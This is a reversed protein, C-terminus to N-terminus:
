GGRVCQGEGLGKSQTTSELCKFEDVKLWEAGQMNMKIKGRSLHLTDGDARWKRYCACYMCAKPRHSSAQIDSHFGLTPLEQKRRCDLAMCTVNVPSELSSLSTFSLLATTNAQPPSTVHGPDVWGIARESSKDSVIYHWQGLQVLQLSSYCHNLFVFLIRTLTLSFRFTFYRLKTQVAGNHQLVKNVTLIWSNVSNSWYHACHVCKGVHDLLLQSM